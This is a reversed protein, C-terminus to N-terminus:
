VSVCYFTMYLYDLCVLQLRAVYVPCAVVFEEDVLRLWFVACINHRLHGCSLNCAIDIWLLYRSITTGIKAISIAHRRCPQLIFVKCTSIFSKKLRTCPFPSPSMNPSPIEPSFNVSCSAM